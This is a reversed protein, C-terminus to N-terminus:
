TSPEPVDDPAKRKKAMAKRDVGGLYKRGTICAALQKARVQYVEQVKKQTTRNSPKTLIKFTYTAALLQTPSNIKETRLLPAEPDLTIMIRVWEAQDDLLELSISAATTVDLGATANLQILPRISAKMVAM